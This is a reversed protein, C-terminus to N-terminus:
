TEGGARRRTPGFTSSALYDRVPILRLRSLLDDVKRPFGRLGDYHAVRYLLPLAVRPPDPDFEWPHLDIVAPAGRDNRRAIERLLSRNPVRRLAWGSGFLLRVGCFRGVLPPLELISGDPRDILHPDHRWSPDGIWVIPALSADYRMGERVLVDLATTIVGSARRARGAGPTGGLSWRAARHGVVPEGTVGEVAQRARRLDTLFEEESMTGVSRHLYGHTAVEHGREHIERVLGQHRAAVWGLVFFTARIDHRDLIALLLRATTEVRSPLRDWDGPPIVDGDIHFWEELDVTLINAAPPM